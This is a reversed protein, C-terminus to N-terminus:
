MKKILFIVSSYNLILTGRWEKMKELTNGQNFFNAPDDFTRKAIQKKDKIADLQQKSRNSQTQM